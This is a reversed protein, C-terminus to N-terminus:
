SALRPRSRVDRVHTLWGHDDTVRGHVIDMFRRQLKLSELEQQVRKAGSELSTTNESPKVTVPLPDPVPLVVQGPEVDVGNVWDRVLPVERNLLEGLRRVVPALSDAPKFEGETFFLTRWGLILSRNNYPFNLDHPRSVQKM